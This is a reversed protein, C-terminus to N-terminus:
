CVPSSKPFAGVRRFDRDKKEKTKKTKILSFRLIVLSKRERGFGYFGQFFFVSFVGFYGLFNRAEFKGLFDLFGLFLLVPIPFAFVSETRNLDPKPSPSSFPM